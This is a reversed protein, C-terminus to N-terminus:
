RTWASLHIGQWTHRSACNPIERGMEANHEPHVLAGISPKWRRLLVMKSCICRNIASCYLAIKFCYESCYLVIKLLKLLITLTVNALKNLKPVDNGRAHDTLCVYTSLPNEWLDPTACASM